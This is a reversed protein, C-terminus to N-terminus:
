VEQSEITTYQVKRTIAELVPSLKTKVSDKKLYVYATILTLLICVLVVLLVMLAKSFKAHKSETLSKLNLIKGFKVNWCTLADENRIKVDTKQSWAYLNKSNADCKIPNNGIELTLSETRSPDNALKDFTDLDEQTFKSINNSELDLYRLKKLCLINFNLSPIYNDGLYLDHLYPLDCFVKEDKWKKIENQELHLKYLKTLNSNVFIDHLDDALEEDTNDAFANTLHLEELNEFNSFVRPHHFNRDDEEAISINNHNLMLRRVSGVHHFTKGKIETIGNNSMDIVELATLDAQEGFINVPLISIHNGTFILVNTKKPLVMLMDSNTFGTDTCNVVFKTARDIYQNGCVCLELLKDECNNIRAKATFLISAVILFKTAQSMMSACNLYM